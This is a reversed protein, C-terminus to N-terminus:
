GADELMQLQKALRGRVLSLKREVTRKSVGILEVIEDVEYGELRAQTARAAVEDDLKLLLVSYQEQMEVLVSPDAAAGILNDLGMSPEQAAAGLDAEAVVRGGGRKAATERRVRDILKYKAIAVLYWWLEQRSEIDSLRGSQAAKWVATFVSQAVDEGCSGSAPAAVRREAEVAIAEAYRDWLESLVALDGHRLKAIWTSVSGAEGPPTVAKSM